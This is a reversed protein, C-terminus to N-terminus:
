GGGQTEMEELERYLAALQAQGERTQEQKVEEKSWDPVNTASVQKNLVSAKKNNGAKLERLYLVAAEANGIGKYSFDNGLKLAYKENLNASDVKNFTYLVLVNIVEDLLGIQALDTLCKRESQNVATKRQEKIFVLFELSSKSKAERVIIKEQDTLGSTQKASAQDSQSLRKTSIVQGIATEKAKRYTELWTWGSREAIHSLAIVDDTEDQFRLQDKAMMAKFASWDFDRKSKVVPSIQGEVDFVDSFSKSVNKDQSPSAPILNEVSVEGIRQELLHRYLPKGLFEGVSLPPMLELGRTEDLQYIKLLGVASLIDLAQQLRHFGVNMHNLISTWQYRGQGSDGFSYLYYYLALADLGIIPQYCKSLSIVDPAFNGAKLYTFPDNPKM